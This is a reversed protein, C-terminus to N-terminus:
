DDMDSLDAANAIMIQHYRNVSPPAGIERVLKRRIARAFDQFNEAREVFARPGAIVEQKYYVDLAPEDNLIALGNITIGAAIADSRLFSPSLGQNSTGDGSVDIVKRLGEFNNDAFLSQSYAVAEGIATSGWRMFRPMNEITKAAEEATKSDHVHLWETGQSHMGAGSWQVVTVAIGNPVASAIAQLVDTHRFANAIGQMQLAYENPEVSSSCDVALVLELAVELSRASGAYSLCAFTFAAVPLARRLRLFHAFLIKMAAM